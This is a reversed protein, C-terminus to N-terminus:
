DENCEYLYSPRDAEIPMRLAREIARLVNTNVDDGVVIIEVDYTVVEKRVGAWTDATRNIVDVGASILAAIVDPSLGQLAVEPQGADPRYTMVAPYTANVTAYIVPDDARDKIVRGPNVRRAPSVCGALFLLALGVLSKWNM